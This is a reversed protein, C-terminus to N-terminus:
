KASVKQFKVASFAGDTQTVFDRFDLYDPLNVFNLTSGNELHYHVGAKQIPMRSTNELTCNELRIKAGPRGEVSAELTGPGVLWYEHPELKLPADFKLKRGNLRVLSVEQPLRVRKYQKRGDPFEAMLQRVEINTVVTECLADWRPEGPPRVRGNQTTVLFLISFGIFTSLAGALVQVHRRRIATALEEVTSYRHEPISSTAKRIIRLWCRPPRGNFCEDALKGLAHVDTAPTIEDGLLQEPAAYHPTGVAVPKGGVISVTVQGNRSSDGNTFKKALGLDVIVPEGNARFLINGPKLDRHAYGTRHLESVARCVCLLYRACERDTKPLDREELLEEILYPRGDYEGIEYVRPFSSSKMQRLLDCESQFRMRRSASGDVLLKLAAVQGHADIVRYVEASGGAGLFASVRWEGIRSDPRLVPLVSPNSAKRLFSEIERTEPM